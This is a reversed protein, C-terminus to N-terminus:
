AGKGAKIANIAQQLEHIDVRISNGYTTDIYLWVFRDDSNELRLKTPHEEEVGNWHEIQTTVPIM